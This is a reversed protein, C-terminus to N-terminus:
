LAIYNSMCLGGTGTGTKAVNVLVGEIASQNTEFPVLDVIQPNWTPSSYDVQLAPSVAGNGIDAFDLQIDTGVGAGLLAFRIFETGPMVPWRNSQAGAALNWVGSFRLMSSSSTLGPALSASVVRAVSNDVLNLNYFRASVKAWKCPPLQFSGSRIDAVVTRTASGAGYQVKLAGQNPCNIWDDVGNTPSVLSPSAMEYIRFAVEQLATAVNLLLPVPKKSEYAALLTYAPELSIPSLVPTALTGGALM